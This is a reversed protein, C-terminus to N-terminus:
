RVFYGQADSRHLLYTGGAILVSGFIGTAAVTVAVLPRRDAEFLGSIAYVMAAVGGGTLVTRAWRYGARMLMLFAVVLACVVVAIVGVFSYLAGTQAIVPSTLMTVLYGATMMPLAALWLWFGTDVDVPRSKPPAGPVPPATPPLGPRPRNPPMSM